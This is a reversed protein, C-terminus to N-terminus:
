EVLGKEKLMQDFPDVKQTTKGAKEMEPAPTRKQTEAEELMAKRVVEAIQSRTVPLDKEVGLSARLAKELEEENEKVIKEREAKLQERFTTMEQNLADKFVAAMRDVLAKQAPAPEEKKPMQCAGDVWKGGAKTCAEETQPTSNDTQESM